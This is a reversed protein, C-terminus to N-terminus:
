GGTLRWCPADELHVGNVQLWHMPPHDPSSTYPRTLGVALIVAVGRRLRGNVSQIAESDPTSRDPGFFRLDTVSLDYVHKGEAVFMRVQAPKDPRARTSVHLIRTPICCGLSAEGKRMELGGRSAGIRHFDSGFIERFSPKVSARLVSWFEVAPVSRVACAQVPDFVHDETEPATPRPTTRGLEVEVAVDFPGDHQALLSATLQGRKPVPRIHSGTQLDIGAVCIHPPQMRTLHNIVIRM